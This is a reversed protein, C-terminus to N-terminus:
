HGPALVVAGIQARFGYSTFYKPLVLNFDEIGMMPYQLDWAFPYSLAFGCCISGIRGFTSKIEGRAGNEERM